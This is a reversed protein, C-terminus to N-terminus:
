AFFNPALPTNELELLLRKRNLGGGYGGFWNTGLVRHCPIIISIPNAGVAQGIAQFARSNLNDGIKKYTTVQGHAIKQIEGWVRLQFPTGILSLPFDWAIKHGTFYLELDGQLEPPLPGASARKGPFHKAQWRKGEEENFTAYILKENAFWFHLPGLPSKYVSLRVFGNGKLTYYYLVECCLM